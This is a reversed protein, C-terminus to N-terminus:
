KLYCRATHEAKFRSLGNRIHQLVFNGEPVRYCLLEVVPVWRKGVEDMYLTRLKKSAASRAAGDTEVPWSGGSTRVNTRRSLM